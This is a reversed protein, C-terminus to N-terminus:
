QPVEDFVLMVVAFDYAVAVQVVQDRESLELGTQVLGLGTQGGDGLCHPHGQLPELRQELIPLNGGILFHRRDFGIQFLGSYRCSFLVAEVRFRQLLAWALAGLAILAVSGASYFGVMPGAIACVVAAGVAMLLITAAKLVAVTTVRKSLFPYALLLLPLGIYIIYALFQSVM